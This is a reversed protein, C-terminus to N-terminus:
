TVDDKNPFYLYYREMFTGSALGSIFGILVTFGFYIIPTGVSGVIPETIIYDILIFAIISGISSSIIGVMISYKRSGVLATTIGVLIFGATIGVFFPLLNSNLNLSSIISAIITSFITLISSIIIKNQSRKFMKKNIYIDFTSNLITSNLNQKKNLELLFVSLIQKALKDVLAKNDNLDATIAMLILNSDQANSKVEKGTIVLIRDELIIRQLKGEFIGSLVINISNFIGSLNENNTVKLSSLKSEWTYLVSGDEKFVFINHIM